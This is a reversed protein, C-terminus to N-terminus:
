DHPKGTSDACSLAGDGIHEGLETREGNISIL